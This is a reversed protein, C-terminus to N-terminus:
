RAAMKHDRKLKKLNLKFVSLNKCGVNIDLRSWSVFTLRSGKLLTIDGLPPKQNLIYLGWTVVFCSRNSPM